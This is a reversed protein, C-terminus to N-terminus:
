AQRGADAEDLFAALPIHAWEPRNRLEDRLETAARALHLLSFITEFDDRAVPELPSTGLTVLYHHVFVASIWREWVRAWAPAVPSPHHRCFTMLGIATAYGFSRVMSAVDALPSTKLRREALPLSTEGELNVIFVDEESWLLQGLHYDGHIRIALGAPGSLHLGALRPTVGSDLVADAQLRTDDPLRDRSAQLESFASGVHQHVRTIMAEISPADIPEPAFAPDETARGLALHMEATRRGLVAAATLPVGVGEKVAEPLADEALVLLNGGRLASAPPPGAATVREFYRGLEDLTRQWTEGENHV